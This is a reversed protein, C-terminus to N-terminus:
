SYTADKFKGEKIETKILERNPIVMSNAPINEAVISGAGIVCNDGIVADKLIVVNSGIWCHTGIQTEGITFGQEKIASDKNKFRHNHDYIKVNEGLITGEGITVRNLVNISCDNNFFCNDGIELQACKNDILISFRRRWTVNKGCKFSRGYILKFFLLKIIASIHFIIKYITM